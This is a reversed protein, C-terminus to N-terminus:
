GFWEKKVLEVDADKRGHCVGFNKEKFRDVTEATLTILYFDSSAVGAIIEERM